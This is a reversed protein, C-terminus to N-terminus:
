YLLLGQERGNLIRDAYATQEKQSLEHNWVRVETFNGKFGQAAAIGRTGGVSFSALKTLSAAKLSKTEGDNVRVSLKNGNKSITILSYIDQPLSLGTAKQIGTNEQKIKLEYGGTTKGGVTLLGEGPVTCIVAGENMGGDPRVFM